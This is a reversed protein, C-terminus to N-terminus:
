ICSPKTSQIWEHTLNLLHVPMLLLAVSKYSWFEPLYFGPSCGSWFGMIFPCFIACLWKPSVQKRTSSPCYFLFHLFPLHLFHLASLFEYYKDVQHIHAFSLFKPTFFLHLHSFNSDLQRSGIISFCTSKSPLTISKM